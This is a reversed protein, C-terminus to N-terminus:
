PLQVAIAITMGKSVTLVLNIKSPFFAELVALSTKISITFSSPIYSDIKLFHIKIGWESDM